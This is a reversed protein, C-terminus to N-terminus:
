GMKEKKKQIYTHSLLGQPKSRGGTRRNLKIIESLKAIEESHSSVKVALYSVAIIVVLSVLLGATQWLKKRLRRCKEKKAHADYNADRKVDASRVYMPNPIDAAADAVSRWDTQQM